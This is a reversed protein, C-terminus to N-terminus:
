RNLCDSASKAGHQSLLRVINQKGKIRAIDLPLTYFRTGGASSAKALIRDCSATGMELYNPQAGHKLLLRVMSSDGKKIAIVLPTEGMPNAANVDEGNFLLEKVLTLNGSAIAYSLQPAVITQNQETSYNQKTQDTELAETSHNPTHSCASLSFLVSILLVVNINSFTM